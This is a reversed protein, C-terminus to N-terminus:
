ICLLLLLLWYTALYLHLGKEQNPSREREFEPQRGLYGNHDLKYYTRLGFVPIQETYHGIIGTESYSTCYLTLLLNLIVETVANTCFVLFTKCFKCFYSLVQEKLMLYWKKLFEKEKEVTM